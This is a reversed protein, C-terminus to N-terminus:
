SAVWPLESGACLAVVTADQPFLSLTHRFDPFPSLHASARLLSSQRRPAMSSSPFLSSLRRCAAEVRGQGVEQSGRGLVTFRDYCV